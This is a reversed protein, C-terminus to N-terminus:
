EVRVVGDVELIPELPPIQVSAPTTSAPQAQPVSIERDGLLAEYRTEKDNFKELADEVQKKNYRPMPIESTNAEISTASYRMFMLGSAVSGGAVILTFFLIGLLWDRGPRM